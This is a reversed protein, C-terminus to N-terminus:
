RAVALKCITGKYGSASIQCLYLGSVLSNEIDEKKVILIHAPARPGTLTKVIRGDLTYIRVTAESPLNYFYFYPDQGPRYPNPALGVPNNLLSSVLNYKLLSLGKGTAIYIGDTREDLPAIVIDYINDSLLQSGNQEVDNQTFALLQKDWTILNLGKDTGIWKNNARDIKIVKINKSLLNGTYPVIETGDYYALGNETGIWIIGGNEDALSVIKNNPVPSNLIDYLTWQNQPTKRYLGNFYTGVWLNNEPDLILSMPRLRQLLPNFLTQWSGTVASYYAIMDNDPNSDWLALYIGTSHDSEFCQIYKTPPGPSLISWLSDNACRFIGNGWTGFWLTNVHDVYMASQSSELSFGTNASNYNYWTGACLHNIGYYPVAIWPSLSKDLAVRFCNYGSLCNFKYPHWSGNGLTAIGQETGCWINGSGDSSLSYTQSTLLGTSFSSWLGHDSLRIGSNTAFLLSDGYQLISRVQLSNLQSYALWSTGNFKAAGSTTGVIMLTDKLFVSLVSRSSLSVLSDRKWSSLLIIIDSVASKALGADTGVWLTDKLVALCSITQAQPMIQSLLFGQWNDGNLFSLGQQSGAFIYSDHCCLATVTDSLLGDILGYYDWHSSTTDLRALGGGNTGFWLQGQQDAALANVEIQPLGETNTYHKILVTDLCSFNFAGGPTAGWLVSPNQLCLIKRASNFNTYSTWQQASGAAILAATVAIVLFIKRM